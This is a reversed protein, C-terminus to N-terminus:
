GSIIRRRIYDESEFIKGLYKNLIVPLIFFNIHLTTEIEDTFLRRLTFIIQFRTFFIKTKKKKKLLNNEPSSKLSNKEYIYKVWCDLLITGKPQIFPSSTILRSSLQDVNVWRSSRYVSNRTTPIAGSTLASSKQRVGILEASNFIVNRFRWGCSRLYFANMFFLPYFSFSFFFFQGRNM